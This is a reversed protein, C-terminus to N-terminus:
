HAKKYSKNSLLHHIPDTSHIHDIQSDKYLSEAKDDVGKYHLCNSTKM